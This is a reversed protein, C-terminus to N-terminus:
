WGIRRVGEEMAMATNISECKAKMITCVSSIDRLVKPSRAPPSGM